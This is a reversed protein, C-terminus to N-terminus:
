HKFFKGSWTGQAAHLRLFYVGAALQSVPVDLVDTKQTLVESLLLRGDPSLVEYREVEAQAAPDLTARLLHDTAPNPSLTIQYNALDSSGSINGLCIKTVFIEEDLFSIPTSYNGMAFVCNDAMVISTYYSYQGIEYPFLGNFGWNTDQKGDKKIRLLNAKSNIQCGLLYNGDSQVALAYAADASAGSMDFFALGVSNFSNDFSGNNLLRVMVLQNNSSSTLNYGCFVIRQQPENLVKVDWFYDDKSFYSTWSGDTNFSNDITGNTNVRIASANEGTFSTTYGCTVIKGDNPQIAIGWGAGEDEENGNTSTRHELYGTGNFTIDSSGNVNFRAVLYSYKSNGLFGHGSAVIKNDNKQIAMNRFSGVETLSKKGNAGWSNDLAGNTNFRWVTPYYNSQGAVAIKGDSQILVGYAYDSANPTDMFVEGFSNDLTGNANYRLLVGRKNFSEDPDDTTGVVYQKRTASDVAINHGTESTTGLSYIAAGNGNTGYNFDISQGAHKTPLALLLCCVLLWGAATSFLPHHAKKKM